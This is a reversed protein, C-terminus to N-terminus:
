VFNYLIAICLQILYSYLTTYFLYLFNYLLIVYKCISHQQLGRSNLSPRARINPQDQISNCRFITNHTIHIIITSLNVGKLDFIKNEQYIRINLFNINDNYELYIIYSLANIIFASNDLKWSYYINSGCFFM